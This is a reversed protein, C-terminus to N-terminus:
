RTQIPLYRGKERSVEGSKAMNFLLQKVNNSNRGMAGAIETPTMSTGHGNLCELIAKREASTRVDSAEGIVSWHGATFKVATEKEEVDRGRVYLTTGNQDRNLVLTTDACGSLGNSGNLAELPDEAAAKRTHHLAVVGIGHTTAWNQLKALAAYDAEYSNQGRKGPPKIRQLVDIIVLRPAKVEGRWEDLIDIFGADLAPASNLWELSGYRAAGQSAGLSILRQQIRREGNELDIYLVDGADCTMSAMAMGGSAVAMAWDLALFSKGLKQRGALISLGEPVYGPVIWKIPEFKKAMLDATSLRKARPKCVSSAKPEYTEVIGNKRFIEPDHDLTM